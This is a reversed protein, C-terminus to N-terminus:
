PRGREGIILVNSFPTKGWAPVVRCRLGEREAIACLHKAPRFRVREGRNFRVLTFFREELLTMTSRWGRETDAERILLHGGPRVARAARELIADQEADTFYHLVDILLVTDAEPLEADRVDGVEFTADLAPAGSHEAAAANADAIKTVDWDIGHARTARGLEILLIPLQGRGTGLDLIEGLVGPEAGVADAILRAVPDGVLKIRVYHFRTREAPTSVQDHRTAAYRGAVREAAKIWPPANEPLEYLPPPAVKPWVLRKVRIAGYTTAAGTIALGLGVLPAGAFAYGAYDALGGDHIDFRIPAGTLLTAGVQVEVTLLVPAFFPNSINSAVWAVAADLRFWICILLVLPTHCGFIPQSGIFLGLAVAMAGRWPSM